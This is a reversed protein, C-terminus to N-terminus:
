SRVTDSNENSIGIVELLLSFSEPEDWKYYVWENTASTILHQYHEVEHKQAPRVAMWRRYRGYPKIPPRTDIHYAPGYTGAYVGFSLPRAGVVQIVQGILANSTFDVAPWQRNEHTERIIRIPKNIEERICDLTRFLTIDAKSWDILKGDTRKEDYSFYRLSDVIVKEM